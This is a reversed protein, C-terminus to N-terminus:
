GAAGFRGAVDMRGALGPYVRVLGDPDIELDATFGAHEGRDIYRVVAGAGDARLHEYRQASPRVALDPVSVWAAVLDAEGPGANLAHRRVPLLNTLPSLGLDVGGAGELAAPDGGADPLDVRGEHEAALAWAGADARTLELRRRWGDGAAAVVLRLPDFGPAELRYDLRYPLPEAGIQTGEAALGDAGLVLWAAEARWADLGRWVVLRRGAAPDAAAAREPWGLGGSRM